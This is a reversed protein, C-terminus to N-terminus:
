VQANGIPFYVAPFVRDGIALEAQDDLVQESPLGDDQIMIALGTGRSINISFRTDVPGNSGTRQRLAVLVCQRVKGDPGAQPLASWTGNPFRVQQGAASKGAPAPPPPPPWTFLTALAAAIRGSHRTFM